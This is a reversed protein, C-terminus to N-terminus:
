RWGVRALALLAVGGAGGDPLTPRASSGTWVGRLGDLAVAGVAGGRKRGALIPAQLAAGAGGAAEAGDAPARARGDEAGGGHQHEACRDSGVGRERM